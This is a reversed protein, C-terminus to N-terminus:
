FKIKKVWFFTDELANVILQFLSTEKKTTLISYNQSVGINGSADKSIAVLNYTTSPALERLIVIHSTTLTTDEPTSKDYNSKNVGQTYKLITTSPEDTSWSIIVQVKMAGDSSALISTESKLDSLKPPQTDIITSFTASASYGAMGYADTSKVVFSYTTAPKLDKLTVSHDTVLQSDIGQIQNQAEGNKGFVVYSNTPTNTQWRITAETSAINEVKVETISPNAITSFTYADSAYKNGILDQGIVRYYYTTGSNLNDLKLTHQTVFNNASKDTLKNGFKDTSGYELESTTVLASEWTIIASTYTQDSSKVNIIRAPTSSEDELATPIKNTKLTQDQSLALSGKQDRSRARFHFLTDSNLGTITLHHDQTEDSNGQIAGYKEDVGFEIFSDTPVDTKWFITAKDGTVAEVKIDSITPAFSPSGTVISSIIGLNTQDDEALIYYSYNHGVSVNSDGYINAEKGSVNAIKSFNQNDVKRYVQYGTINDENLASWGIVLRYDQSQTQSLDAIVVNSVRLPIKHGIVNSINGYIDKVKLYITQGNEVQFNEKINKFPEWQAGNFTENTSIMMSNIISDDNSQISNINIANTETSGGAIVFKANQPNKTDIVISASSIDKTNRALENDNATLKIKFNNSFTNNLDQALNIRITKATYANTIDIVGKDGEVAQNSFSSWNSGGDLSYQISINIKNPIADNDTDLDRAQYNVTLVKSGDQAFTPLINQIEPAANDIYTLTMSDISPDAVGNDSTFTLQIEIFQNDALEHTLSHPLASFNSTWASKSLDNSSSASRAKYSISSNDSLIASANLEYFNVEKNADFIYNATASYSNFYSYNISFQSITPTVLIDTTSLILKIKLSNGVANFKHIQDAIVGEWTIGGDSSLYVAVDTGNPKSATFSFTAKTLNNEQSNLKNTIMTGPTAFGYRLSAFGGRNYGGAYYTYSGVQVSTLITDNKFDSNITSSLDTVAAGEDYKGFKTAFASSGISVHASFTGGALFLSGGALTISNITSDSWSAPIYNSLDTGSLVSDEAFKGHSGGFYTHGTTPNYGIATVAESSWFKSFNETMDTPTTSGVNVSALSGTSTGWWLKTGAVAMATIDGSTLNGSLNDSLYTFASNQWQGWHHTPGGFYLINQTPAYALTYISTTGWSTGTVNTTHNEATSGNYIAFRGIEGALYVNTGDNALAYIAMSGWFSSITSTLDTFTSTTTNYKGFKGGVGSLYIDNNINTQAYIIHTALKGTLQSTYETLSSGTWKGIHNASFIYNNGSDNTDQSFGLITDSGWSSTNSSLDTITSGNIKVFKHSPGGLYKNAGDYGISTVNGSGWTTTFNPIVSNTSDDQFTAATIRYHGFKGSAGGIWLNDNTFLSSYIKTNSWMSNLSSSYDTVTIGDCTIKAFKSADGSFYMNYNITDFSVTNIANTSWFSSIKSNLNTATKYVNDFYAFKGSAGGIFVKETGMSPWGATTANITATGWFSSIQSTYDTVTLANEDLYAFKGNTGGFYLDNSSSRVPTMSNIANKGWFSAIKATLDVFQTGDYYGFSGNSGGYYARHFKPSFRVSQITELRGWADSVKTTLNSVTGDGSGGLTLHHNSTDWNAQTSSGSDYRLADTFNETINQSTQALSIHGPNSATDINSLTGSEFDSQTDWIKTPASAQSRSEPFFLMTMLSIFVLLITFHIYSYHPMLHWRYYWKYRLRLRNHSTRMFPFFTATSKQAIAMRKELNKILSSKSTSSNSKSKKPKIAKLINKFHTKKFFSM